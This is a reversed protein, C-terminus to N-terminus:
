KGAYLLRIFTTLELMVNRLTLTANSEFPCLTAAETSLPHAFPNLEEYAKKDIYSTDAYGFIEVTDTVTACQTLSDLRNCILERFQKKVTM